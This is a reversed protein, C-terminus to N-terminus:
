NGTETYKENEVKGLLLVINKAKPCLQALKPPNPAIVGTLVMLILQYESWLYEEM